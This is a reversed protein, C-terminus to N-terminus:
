YGLWELLGCEIIEEPIYSRKVQLKGDVIELTDFDEPTSYCFINLANEGAQFTNIGMKWGHLDLIHILKEMTLM